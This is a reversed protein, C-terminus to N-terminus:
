MFLRHFQFNHNEGRNVNRNKINLTKTKILTSAHDRDIRQEVQEKGIEERTVWDAM